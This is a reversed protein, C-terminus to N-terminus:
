YRCAFKVTDMYYFGRAAGTGYVINFSSGLSKSSNSSKPYYHGYSGCLVPDPSQVCKPNVWLEYSGTDLTVMVKQPPTGIDV